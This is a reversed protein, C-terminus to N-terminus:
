CNFSFPSITVLSNINETSAPIKDASALKIANDINLPLFVQFINEIEKTRPNM